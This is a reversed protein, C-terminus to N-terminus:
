ITLIHTQKHVLELRGRSQLSFSSHRIWIYRFPEFIVCHFASPLRRFLKPHLMWGWWPEKQEPTPQLAPYKKFKYVWTTKLLLKLVWSIISRKKILCANQFEPNKNWTSALHQQIQQKSLMQLPFIWLLCSSPFFFGM